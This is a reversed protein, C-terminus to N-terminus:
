RLLTFWKKLTYTLMNSFSLKKITNKAILNVTSNQIGDIYYIVEGIKQGEYIPAELSDPLNIEYTVKNINSKSVLIGITKKLFQMLM